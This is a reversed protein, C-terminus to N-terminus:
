LGEEVFFSIRVVRIDMGTLQHTTLSYYVLLCIDMWIWILMPIIWGYGFQPQGAGDM